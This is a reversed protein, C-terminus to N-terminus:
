EMPPTQGNFDDGYGDNDADTMCFQAQPDESQAAGPHTFYSFDDCDTDFNSVGTPMGVNNTPSCSEPDPTEAGEELFIVGSTLAPTGYGDLDIDEYCMDVRDCDQDLGDAPIEPAGFYVSAFNDNCDSGGFASDAYGDQDRDPICDLVGDEDIDQEFAAAGPYIFESTDDCDLMNDAYGTPVECAEITISEIGFGDGDNDAYFTTTGLVTGEADDILDNCNNDFGDCYESADPSIEINSDDCDLNNTVWEAGPSECASEMQDPDGYQDGDGDYYWDKPGLITANTPDCDNEIIGDNDPDIRKQFEDDSIFACSIFLYVLM